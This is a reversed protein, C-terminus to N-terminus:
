LNQTWLSPEETIVRQRWVSRHSVTTRVEYDEICCIERRWWRGFFLLNNRGTQSNTQGNLLDRPQRFDRIPKRKATKPWQERLGAEGGSWWSFWGIYTFQLRTTGRPKQKASERVTWGGQRVVMLVMNGFHVWELHDGMAKVWSERHTQGKLKWKGHKVRIRM